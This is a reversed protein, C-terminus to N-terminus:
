GCRISVIRGDPGLQVNMRDASFDMTGKDRPGLVRIPLGRAASRVAHESEEWSLGQYYILGAAIRDCRGQSAAASGHMLVMFAAAAALKLM